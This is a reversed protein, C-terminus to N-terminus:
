QVLHYQLEYREPQDAASLIPDHHVGGGWDHREANRGVDSYQTQWPTDEIRAHICEHATEPIQEVHPEDPAVVVTVRRESARVGDVSDMERLDTALDFPDTM